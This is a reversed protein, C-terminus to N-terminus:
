RLYERGSKGRITSAHRNDWGSCVGTYVACGFASLHSSVLCRFTQLNKKLEVSTGHVTVAKHVERM